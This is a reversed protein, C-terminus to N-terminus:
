PEQVLKEAEKWSIRQQSGDPQGIQIVWNDDVYVAGLEGRRAMALLKKIIGIRYTVPNFGAPGLPNLVYQRVLTSREAKRDLRDRLMQATVPLPPADPPLNRDRLYLERRKEQPMAGAM